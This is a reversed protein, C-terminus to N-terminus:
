QIPNPPRVTFSAGKEGTAFMVLRVTKPGLNRGNHLRNVMEAFAEGASFDKTTGDKMEVTVTGAIIYAYCPVPHEHWGTEAGPPIEVLLATVEPDDIQPYAIPDGSSTTTIKTLTTVRIAEHYASDSAANGIAVAILSALVIIQALAFTRM